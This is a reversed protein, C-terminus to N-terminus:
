KGIVRLIATQLSPHASLLALAPHALSPRSLIKAAARCAIARRRWLHGFPAILQDCSLRRDASRASEIADAALLASRMALGMGEGGIPEIAAAANGIPIVGDATACRGVGFRPLPSALWRTLRTAGELRRRLSRNQRMMGALLDDLNAGLRRVREAPVSMALNWAGEEVPNLGVYHGDLAFLEVADRPGDVDVFHASIGLDGTPPPRDDRFAGKGDALLIVDASLTEIRNTRLDRVTAATPHRALRECRAPQRIEAGAEAAARLLLDDMRRRSIGACARPLPIAVAHGDADHLIVRDLRIAGARDLAGALGLQRLTEIGTHSLCEGCVKDRPFTHQEVLTVGWGHRALRLAAVAGAPGGGVILVRSVHAYHAQASLASQPTMLRPM